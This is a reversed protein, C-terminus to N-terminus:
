PMWVSRWSITAASGNTIAFVNTQGPALAWWFSPDFSVGSGVGPFALASRMDNAGQKITRAYFDVTTPTSAVLGDAGGINLHLSDALGTDPNVPSTRSLKTVGSAGSTFAIVPYTAAKGGVVCNGGGSRSDLTTAEIVPKQSVLAASVKRDVGPGRPSQQQRFMIQTQPRGNETWVISGDGRAANLAATLKEHRANMLAFGSLGALSGSAPAPAMGMEVELTFPLRGSYFPLNLGGDGEPIVLSSERVERAWALDSSYGVFNIDTKDNLVAIEGFGDRGAPATITYKVTLDVSM